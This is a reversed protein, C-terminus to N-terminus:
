VCVMTHNSGVALLPISPEDASMPFTMKRMGTSLRGGGCGGKGGGDAVDLGPQEASGGAESPFARWQNNAQGLKGFDAYGFSWCQGTADACVAHMEGCVVDMLMEAPTALEVAGDRHDPADTANEGNAGFVTNSGASDLAEGWIFLRSM